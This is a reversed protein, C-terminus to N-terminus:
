ITVIVSSLTRRLQPQCGRSLCAFAARGPQAWLSRGFFSIRQPVGDELVEFDEKSLDGALAGREDRVTFAMNVLNIDVRIRPLDAGVAAALCFIFPLLRM